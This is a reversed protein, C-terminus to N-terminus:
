TIGSSPSFPQYRPDLYMKPDTSLLRSVRGDRIEVMGGKVRRLEPQRFSDANYFIDSPSIISYLIM